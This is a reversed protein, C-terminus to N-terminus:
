WRQLFFLTFRVLVYAAILLLLVSNRVAFRRTRELLNEQHAEVREHDLYRAVDAALEKVSAYRGSHDAAQAKRAISRV